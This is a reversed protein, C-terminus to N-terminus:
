VNPKTPQAKSGPYQELLIEKLGTLTYPKRLIEFHGDRIATIAKEIDQGM